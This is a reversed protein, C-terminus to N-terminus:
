GNKSEKVEKEKKISLIRAIIRRIEKIKGPSVVNAGISTNAKEKALELKLENLKKDLEKDNLKRIDKVRLIAM